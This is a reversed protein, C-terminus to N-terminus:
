RKKEGCKRNRDPLFPKNINKGKEFSKQEAKAKADEMDINGNADCKVVVVQMGAM